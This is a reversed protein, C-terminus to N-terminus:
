LECKRDKHGQILWFAEAGFVFSNEIQNNPSFPSLSVSLMEAKHEAVTM